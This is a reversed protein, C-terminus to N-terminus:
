DATIPLFRSDSMIMAALLVMQFYCAVDDFHTWVSRPFGSPMFTKAYESVAHALRTEFPDWPNSMNNKDPILLTAGIM